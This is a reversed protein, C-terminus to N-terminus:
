AGGDDHKVAHEGPSLGFTQTRPLRYFDSVGDEATKFRQHMWMWCYPTERIQAELRRNIVSTIRAIERQKDEGTDPYILDGFRLKYRGRGIPVAYGTVIPAGTKYALAAPVPTTSAPRGFFNAMIRNRDHVDQDNVIGVVRNEKLNTLLKRVSRHKYVVKNGSRTRLDELVKHVLPNDLPRAIASLPINLYGLALNMVEWNGYHASCLIVGKGGQLGEFFQGVNELEVWSLFNRDNMLRLRLTEMIANGFHLFCDRVVQKKQSEPMRDGFAQDLNRLAIYRHRKDLLYFLRGVCRGFWRTAFGPLTRVFFGLLLVLGYQFFHLPRLKQDPGPPRPGKRSAKSNM